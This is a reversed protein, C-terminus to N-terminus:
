SVNAIFLRGFAILEDHKDAREEASKSDYGGAVILPRPAWIQRIFDISATSKPLGERTEPGNVRPEIVHLYALDSFREKLQGVVYTYIPEPDVDKM